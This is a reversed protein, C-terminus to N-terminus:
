FRRDPDWEGHVARLVDSIEGVTARALTTTAIAIAAAVGLAILLGHISVGPRRFAILVNLACLLVLTRYVPSGTALAITVGSLSWVAFARPNM